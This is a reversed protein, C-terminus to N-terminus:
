SVSLCEVEAAAQATWAATRAPIQVTAAVGTPTLNLLELSSADAGYLQTLREKTAPLGFGSGRKSASREDLSGVGNRVEIRLVGDHREAVLSVTDRGRHLGVGYQVANEVLPQLLMAPVLCMGAEPAIEIAFGLRDEFRCTQIALYHDLIAMEDRLPIEQVQSDRLTARLLDGLRSLMEEARDPDERVLTTAAQLTNFLFHPNLQSRLVQLRAATLQANLQTSRLRTAHADQHARYIMVAGVILWYTVLSVQTHQSFYHRFADSATLSGAHRRWGLYAELSLEAATMALSAGVHVPLTSRWQAKTLPYRWALWLAAPTLLVWIYASWWAYYAFPETGGRSADYAYWQVAFVTLAFAWALVLMWRAPAFGSTDSGNDLREM